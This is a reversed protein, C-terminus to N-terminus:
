AAVPATEGSRKRRILQVVRGMNLAWGIGWVPPKLVHEDEPSWYTERVRDLTPPRLEYPVFGALKGHWAREEKPKRLETVVAWAMLCFLITRKFWKNKTPKGERAM